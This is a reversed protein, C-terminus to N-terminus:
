SHSVSSLRNHFVRNLALLAAAAVIMPIIAFFVPTSGRWGAKIMAGGLLPGVISGIRGVGLAWGVGTSRIDSPYFSATVANMAIQGGVVVAGALAAGSLMVAINGDARAIM